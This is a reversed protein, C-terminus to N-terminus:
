VEDKLKLVYQSSKTKGWPFIRRAEAVDHAFTLARRSIGSFQAAQPVGDYDYTMLWNELIMDVNMITGCYKLKFM